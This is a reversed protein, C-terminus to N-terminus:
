FIRLDCIHRFKTKPSLFVMNRAPENRLASFRNKRKRRRISLVLLAPPQILFGIELKSLCQCARCIDMDYLVVVGFRALLPFSSLLKKKKRPLSLLDCLSSATQRDVRRM